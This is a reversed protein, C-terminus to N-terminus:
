NLKGKSKFVDIARLGAPKVAENNVEKRTVPANLKEEAEKLQTELNVVREELAVKETDVEPPELEVIQAKLQEIEADKTKQLEGCDVLKAKFADIEQQRTDEVQVDEDKKQEEKKNMKKEERMDTDTCNCGIGISEDKEDMNNNNIVGCGDSDSCAGMNVSAAGLFRYSKEVWILDDDDFGAAKYDVLGDLESAKLQEDTSMYEVSINPTMDAKVNLDMFAKWTQYAPMREEPYIYIIMEKTAPNYETYDHFGVIDEIRIHVGMAPNAGHDLDHFTKDMSKYGEQLGQATSFERTRGNNWFMDGKMAVAAIAGERKRVDRRIKPISMPDAIFRANRRKVIDRTKM